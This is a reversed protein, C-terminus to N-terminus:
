YKRKKKFIFFSLIIAILIIAVIVTWLILNRGKDEAEEQQQGEATAEEQQQQSADQVTAPIQKEAIAFYSFSTLESDYYYYSSDEEKYVTSIENWKNSISDFRFFSINEKLLSNNITWNKDVQIKVRAKSLKDTLRETLIELYKYVKGSKEVSVNAPKGDYKRVTIKVNQSPNNVEISIEKIGIEEDFDKMITAVGSTIMPFIQSKQKAWESASGGSSGGGSSTSSSSTATIVGGTISPKNGSFHPLRMWIRNNTTDIYCPNTANFVSVNTTCTNNGMLTEWQSQYTSFHSNNGALLTGNTGNSTINWIPTNWNMVGSSNEDYLLPISMNVQGNENLGTTSTSGETYPMSVLIYDYITPGLSGFRLASSFNSGTSENASSDFLADPPGSALMDVNVYHILIGGTGMRFSLKGGGIISGLPNFSDMNSSSGIRCVSGPNPVDCTLNSKYLEMVLNSNQLQTDIAGPNFQSLTINNNSIIQGATRTGVRKPAYNASYVNIEKVGTSNILPIYFSATSSEQQTDLMFTFQTANYSSYNVTVEIHASLQSLINTSNVLNFRQRATSINRSQWDPAANMTFNSAASGWDTSMLPWMTFNVQTGSSSYNLSINRYGGYYNTGNRATAFLLYNAGEAPGPLTINFFGSTLNYQDTLGLLAGSSSNRWMASLNYPMAASDGLYIMNGPELIFPIITFESWLLNQGTSNAINGSVWLLNETANFRKNVTRTTANYTSTGDSSINYSSASTFNNWDFSVPMSQNPFIMISYNRDIPVYITKQSVYSTFGEAIPYGLTQDKVIYNFTRTQGSGNVVTINITGAQRLYFDVSLGNQLEAYSFAPVSQGIFDIATSGDTANNQFHTVSPEYFWSASNTVNLNFWGTQNSLTSNYGVIQWSQNRVTVNVTANFLASGNVDYITGNFEWASIVDVLLLTLVLVSFLFTIKLRM